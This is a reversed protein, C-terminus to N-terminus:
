QCAVPGNWRYRALAAFEPGTWGTGAAVRDFGADVDIGFGSGFVAPDDQVLDALVIMEERSYRKAIINPM